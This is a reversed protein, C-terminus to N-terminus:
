LTIEQGSMSRAEFIKKTLFERYDFDLIDMLEWYFDDSRMLPQLCNYARMMMDRKDNIIKRRYYCIDIGAKKFINVFETLKLDYIMDDRFGGDESKPYFEVANCVDAGNAFSLNVANFLSAFFQLGQRVSMKKLNVYFTINAKFDSRLGRRFYEKVNEPLVYEINSHKTIFTMSRLLRSIRKLSKKFGSMAEDLNDVERMSLYLTFMHDYDQPRLEAEPEVEEDPIIVEDHQSADLFDEYLKHKKNDTIM